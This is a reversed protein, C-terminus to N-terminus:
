FLTASIHFQWAGGAYPFLVLTDPDNLLLRARFVADVDDSPGMNLEAALTPKVGGRVGYWPQDRLRVMGVAVAAAGGEFEDPTDFDPHYGPTHVRVTAEYLGPEPELFGAAEVDLWGSLLDRQRLETLSLVEESPADDGQGEIVAGSPTVLQYRALHADTASAQDRLIRLAQVGTKLYRLPDIDELDRLDGLLDLFLGSHPQVAHVYLGRSGIYGAGAVLVKADVSAGVVYDLSIGGVDSDSSLESFSSLFINEDASEANIIRSGWLPATFAYYHGILPAGFDKVTRTAWDSYVIGSSGAASYFVRVPGGGAALVLNYASVDYGQLGLEGCAISPLQTVKQLGDVGIHFVSVGDESGEATLYPWAYRDLAAIASYTEGHTQWANKAVDYPVTDSVVAVDLCGDQFRQTGDLDGFLGAQAGAVLALAIM